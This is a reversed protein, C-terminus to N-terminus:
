KKYFDTVNKIKDWLAKVHKDKTTVTGINIRIIFKENVISHTLYFNGENNIHDYVKKTMENGPKVTFTVLALVREFAIEFREDQIIWSELETAMRIHNRIFEQM